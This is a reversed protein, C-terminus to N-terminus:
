LNCIVMLFEYKFSITHTDTISKNERYQAKIQLKMKDHLSRDARTPDYHWSRAVKLLSRYSSLVKATSMAEYFYFLYIHAFYVISHLIKFIIHM